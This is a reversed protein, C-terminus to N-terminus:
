FIRLFPCPEIESAFYVVKTKILGTDSKFTILWNLASVEAEVETEDLNGTIKSRFDFWM